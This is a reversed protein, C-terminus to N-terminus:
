KELNRKQLSLKAKAVQHRQHLRAPTNDHAYKAGNDARQQKVRQLEVPDQRELLKDYYRPPKNPHGNIIVEDWPYVGDSFQDFWEAALGPRRSMTAYEPQLQVIAGTTTDRCYHESASPGTIKKNIYGAVYGASQYNVEGIIGYGKGWVKELLESTYLDHENERTYKKKDPFDYGFLCAHYHPRQFNEGYEGCQFYRVRRPAIEKRLKKMFKQFHEKVLSGDTPLHDDDYTLTIFSNEDHLQAEHTMRTAWNRRTALRCGTCQGCPLALPEWGPALTKPRQGRKWITPKQDSGTPRAAELPKYCTM